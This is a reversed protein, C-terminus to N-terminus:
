GTSAMHWTSLILDATWRFDGMSKYLPLVEIRLAKKPCADVCYTGNAKCKEATCRWDLGKVFDVYGEPRVHIGRPCIEQCKGCKICASENRWVRYKGLSNRWRDPAPKIERTPTSLGLEPVANTPVENKDIAIAM